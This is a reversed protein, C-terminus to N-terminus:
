GADLQLFEITVNDVVTLDDASAQVSFSSVICGTASYNNGDGNCGGLLFTLNGNGCPQWSPGSFLGSETTVLRTIQATGQPQSAYIVADQSGISRRRTVNQSYQITINQAQTVIEGDWIISCNDATIPDKVNVPPRNFMEAM